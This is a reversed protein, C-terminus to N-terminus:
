PLVRYLIIIGQPYRTDYPKAKPFEMIKEARELIHPITGNSVFYTQNANVADRIKASITAQAGIVPIGSKDLYIQLGDPLTGFYGETGVLVPGNKKKEILFQAIEKFGYGATWDELYGRREARPLPVEASNTLLLYDFYLPLPLISIIIIIILINKIGKILELVKEVGFGALILLPPISFLLYRATFTRLFATQALLPVVAWIVIVMGLRNKKMVMVWIGYGMFVLVPLTLLKPFWDMIDRLHPIFPDLPRGSLESLSFMYDANRASLKHFEPGLRLLNYVVIAIFIALVWCGFLKLLKNKNLKNFSSGILSLPLVILNVIAPTKTLMAGGLLFGLIMSLDLRQSKLLWVSFFIAWITFAALMSDVLAMRDFFVTYPVIAYILASWLAVRINFVKWSLAFVGALTAFGSLVSLFRGAFLPDDVGILDSDFIKFMPMMIWMFLPAKGDTLPLFRLTPESKMVQAWRIYIAEDAFIPQLTLNPLRLFFYLIVILLGLVFELKHKRIFNM